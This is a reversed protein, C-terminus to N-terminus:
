GNGTKSLLGARELLLVGLEEVRLDRPAAADPTRGKGWVFYDTRGDAFGTADYVKPLIPVHDGYWCLWGDHPSQELHAQLVRMM